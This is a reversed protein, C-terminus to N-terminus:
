SCSGLVSAFDAQVSAPVGPTCDVQATGSGVSVWQGGELHRVESFAQEAGATVPQYQLAAWTQDSDAIRILIVQYQPYQAQAAAEIAAQEGPTPARNGAAAVTTSTTSTTSSTTSTSSSTSSTSTSTSSSTSTTSSSTTTTSAPPHSSGNNHNAVLVGVLVLLVVALAIVLVM